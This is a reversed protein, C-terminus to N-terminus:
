AVRRYRSRATRPHSAAGALWTASLSGTVAFDGSTTVGETGRGRTPRFAVSCTSEPPKAVFAKGDPGVMFYGAAADGADQFAFGAARAQGVAVTGRNLGMVKGNYLSDSRNAYVLTGPPAARAREADAPPTPPTAAEDGRKRPTRPRRRSAEPESPTPPLRRRVRNM